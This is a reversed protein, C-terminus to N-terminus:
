LVGCEEVGADLPHEVLGQDAAEFRILWGGFALVELEDDAGRERAGGFWRVFELRRERRALM